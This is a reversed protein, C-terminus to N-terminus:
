RRAPRWMSSSRVDALRGDADDFSIAIGEGFAGGQVLAERSSARYHDRFSGWPGSESYHDRVRSLKGYGTWTVDIDVVVPGLPWCGNGDGNELDFGHYGNEDEWGGNGDEGNRPFTCAYGSLELQQDVYADNLKRDIAGNVLPADGWWEAISWTGKEPDYTEEFTFLNVAQITERDYRGDMVSLFSERWTEDTLSGEVASAFRGSFSYRVPKPKVQPLKGAEISLVLEMEGNGPEFGEEDEYVDGEYAGVQLYYTTRRSANFGLRAQPTDMDDNCAVLRLNADYVALVTDFTSGATDVVIGTKKSLEIRYWVTHRIPACWPEPEDAEVTAETIDLAEYFPLATVSTADELNDNAPAAIAALPQLGLLLVALAFSLAARARARM